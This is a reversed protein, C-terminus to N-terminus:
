KDLYVYVTVTNSKEKQITVVSGKAKFLDDNGFVITDFFIASTFIESSLQVHSYCLSGKFSTFIVSTSFNNIQGNNLYQQTVYGIKNKLEPDSFIDFTPTM